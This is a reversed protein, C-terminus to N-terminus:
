PIRGELFIAASYELLRQGMWPMLLIAAAVMAVIKPIFTLTQEQIQTVAQLLSVIIGVALGILLMPASVVLALVLTHRILDTADQLSLSLDVVWWGETLAAAPGENRPRAATRRSM